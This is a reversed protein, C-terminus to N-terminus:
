CKIYTIISKEAKGIVMNGNIALKLVGTDSKYTGGAADWRGLLILNNKNSPIHLIDNLTLTYMQGMYKSVLEVTGRGKIEM